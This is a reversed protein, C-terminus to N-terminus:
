YCGHPHGAACYLGPSTVSRAKLADPSLLATPILTWPLLSLEAFSPQLGYMCCFRPLRAAQPWFCGRAGRHLCSGPCQRVSSLRSCSATGVQTLLTAVISRANILGPVGLYQIGSKSYITAGAPVSKDARHAQQAACCHLYHLVAALLLRRLLTDLQAQSHPHSHWLLPRVAHLGGLQTSSFCWATLVCGIHKCSLQLCVVCKTCLSQLGDAIPLLASGHGAALVLMFPQHLASAADEGAEFWPVNKTSSLLEPVVCGACAPPVSQEANASRCNQPRFWSHGLCHLMALERLFQLM